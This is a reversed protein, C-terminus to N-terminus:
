EIRSFKSIFKHENDADYDLILMKNEIKVKVKIDVDLAGNTTGKQLMRLEQKGVDFSYTGNSFDAKTFGSITTGDANFITIQRKGEKILDNYARKKIDADNLDMIVKEEATIIDHKMQLVFSDKAIDFSFYNSISFYEIQWKGIIDNQSIVNQSYSAFYCSLLLLLIKIRLLKKM